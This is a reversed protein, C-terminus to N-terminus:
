KECLHHETLGLELTSLVLINIDLFIEPEDDEFFTFGKSSQECLKTIEKVLRILKIKKIPIRFSIAGSNVLHCLDKFKM